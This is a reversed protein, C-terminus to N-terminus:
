GELIEEKGCCFCKLIIKDVKINRRVKTTKNVQEIDEEIYTEPIVTCIPTFQYNHIGKRCLFKSKFFPFVCNIKKHLNYTKSIEMEM